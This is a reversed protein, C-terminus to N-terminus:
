IGVRGLRANAGRRKGTKHHAWFVCWLPVFACPRGLWYLWSHSTCLRTPSLSFPSPLSTILSVVLPHPCHHVFSPPCSFSFSLPPHSPAFLSRSHTFSLPYVPAPLHSHPFPPPYVLAPLRSHPCALAFPPLPAVTAAATVTPGGRGNSKIIIACTHMIGRTEHSVLLCLYLSNTITIKISRTEHSVTCFHTHHKRSRTCHSFDWGVTYGHCVRCPLSPTM